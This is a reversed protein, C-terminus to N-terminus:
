PPCIPALKPRNIPIKRIPGNPINSPGKIPATAPSIIFLLLKFFEKLGARPEIKPVSVPITKFNQKSQLLYCNQSIHEKEQVELNSQFKMNSLNVNDLVLKISGRM